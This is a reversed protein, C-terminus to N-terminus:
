DISKTKRNACFNRHILIM